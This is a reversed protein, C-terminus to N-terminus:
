AAKRRRRIFMFIGSLIALLATFVAAVPAPVCFPKKQPLTQSDRLAAPFPRPEVPIIKWQSRDAPAQAMYEDFTYVPALGFARSSPIQPIHVYYIAEVDDALAQEYASLPRNAKGQVINLLDEGLADFSSAPYLRTSEELLYDYIKRGDTLSRSTAAVYAYAGIAKLWSEHGRRPANWGLTRLTDISIGACNAASHNYDFDHRYFHNYVREIGAQYHLAARDNKLVAVLMYSPRYWSQGSNLDLLYKDMPTPAAVIGKESFSDLNYFNYVMWRSWDGDDRYRGTAIAFHGGHAEDDDGQAGNLMIGLVAKGNWAHKDGPNRAWLLRSSFDDRAGGKNAKVLSRLSEQAALPRAKDQSTIAFDLPWVTRAVFQPRGTADQQLEGRLRLPRQALYAQSDANYYSQNTAIKQTIAFGVNQGNALQLTKGDTSLRTRPIVKSSGLWILPAQAELTSRGALFDAVDAQANAGAAFGATPTEKAPAAVPEDQFYWLAQPITACNACRGTGLKLGHADHLGLPGDDLADVVGGGHASLTLAATLAGVVSLRVARFPTKM